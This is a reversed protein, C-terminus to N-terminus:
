DGAEWRPPGPDIRPGDMHYKHHVFQFQSPNKALYKPEGRDIENWRYKMVLFFPFFVEDYEDDEDCPQVILRWPHPADTAEAAPGKVVFLFAM